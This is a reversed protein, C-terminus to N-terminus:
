RGTEPCARRWATTSPTSPAIRVLEALRAAAAPCGGIAHQARVAWAVVEIRHPSSPYDRLFGELCAATAPATPATTVAIRCALYRASPTLPSPPGALLQDLLARAVATRGRRLAIRARDLQAEDLRPDHPHDGILRALLTDATALDGTAM